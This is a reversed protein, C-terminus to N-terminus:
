KEDPAWKLIRGVKEDYKNALKTAKAADFGHETLISVLYSSDYLIRSRISDKIFVEWRDDDAEHFSLINSYKLFISLSEIIEM